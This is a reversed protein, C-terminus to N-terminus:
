KGETISRYHITDPVKGKGAEPIMGEVLISKGTFSAADVVSSSEPVLNLVDNSGSVQVATKGNTTVVTGAVIATSDKMTFGNKAIAENLQKLTTMNGPKMKVTALGKELSVDVTDVGPVAKLSVRV